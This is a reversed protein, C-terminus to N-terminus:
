GANEDEEVVQIKNLLADIDTENDEKYVTLNMVTDGTLGFVFTDVNNYKSKRVKDIVDHSIRAFDERGSVRDNYEIVLHIPPNLNDGIEDYYIPGFVRVDFQEIYGSLGNKGLVETLEDEILSKAKDLEYESHINGKKILTSEVGASDRIRATVRINKLDIGVSEITLVEDPYMYDLYERFANANATKFLMFSGFALVAICLIIVIALKKM